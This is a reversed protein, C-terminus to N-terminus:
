NDADARRKSSNMVTKSWLNDQSWTISQNWLTDLSISPQEEWRRVIWWARRNATETSETPNRPFKFTHGAYTIQVHSDVSLEEQESM